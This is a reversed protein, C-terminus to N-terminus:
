AGPEYAAPGRRTAVLREPYRPLTVTPGARWPRKPYLAILPLPRGDDVRPLLWPLLVLSIRPATLASRSPDNNGSIATKAARPEASAYPVVATVSCSPVLRTWRRRASDGASSNSRIFCGSHSAPIAAFTALKASCTTARRNPGSARTSGIRTNSMINAPRILAARLFRASGTVPAPTMAQAPPTAPNRTMARGDAPRSAIPRM